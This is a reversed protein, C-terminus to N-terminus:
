LCSLIPSYQCIRCPIDNSVANFLVFAKIGRAASNGHIAEFISNTGKIVGSMGLLEDLHQAHVVAPWLSLLLIAVCHLLVM